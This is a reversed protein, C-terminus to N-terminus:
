VHKAGKHPMELCGGASHQSTSMYMGDGWLRERAGPPVTIVSSPRVAGQTELRWARRVVVSERRLEGAKM